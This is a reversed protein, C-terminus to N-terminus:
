HERVAEDTPTILWTTLGDWSVGFPRCELGRAALWDDFDKALAPHMVIVRPDPESM